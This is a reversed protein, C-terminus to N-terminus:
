SKEESDEKERKKMEIGKGRRKKRSEEMKKRIKKIKKNNVPAVM